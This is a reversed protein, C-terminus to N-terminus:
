NLMQAFDAMRGRLTQDIVQGDYEIFVGAVLEPRVTIDLQITRGIKKELTAQLVEQESPTLAQATGVRVFCINQADFVLEQYIEAIEPLVTLREQEALITLFNREEQSLPTGRNQNFWEDLWQHLETQFNPASLRKLVAGDGMLKAVVNLFDQWHQQQEPSNARGFVARAYPRAITQSQAM